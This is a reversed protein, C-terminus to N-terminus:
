RRGQGERTVLYIAKSHRLEDLAADFNVAPDQGYIALCRLGAAAICGRVADESHHRQEHDCSARAWGDERESFVDLSARALGNPAFDEGAHGRWLMVLGPAELAFTERFFSRYTALTNADFVLVGGPRLSRALGRLASTLERPETLYNAVDDLCTILDFEGLSDLRRLDACRLAVGPGAKAAAVELMAPSQDCATVEFGRALLPMFSKGTGCGADLARAGALGHGYALRLLGGVWLEYDHHATFRDYFPAMADYAEVAPTREAVLTMVM